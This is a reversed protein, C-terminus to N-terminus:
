TTKIFNLHNPDIIILLLINHIPNIEMLKLQQQNFARFKVKIQEQKHTKKPKCVQLCFSHFYERITMSLITQVKHSKVWILKSIIVM